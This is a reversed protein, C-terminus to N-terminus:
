RAPDRWYAVGAWDMLPRTEALPLGVVNSYSGDVRSVLLAGLGQIGYGGAKDAPEGTAVYHAILAEDLETFWVDTTVVCSRADDGRAMCVGSLVQHRRGSLRRLLAAAHTDDEPKGLPEGDLVVATDAGLVVASADLGRQGAAAKERAMRRVYDGAKEDARASEDIAPPALRVFPVGIQELLAARRPSASALHLRAAM